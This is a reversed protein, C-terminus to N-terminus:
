PGAREIMGLASWRKERTRLSRRRNELDAKFTELNGPCPWACTRTEFREESFSDLLDRNLENATAQCDITGDCGVRLLGDCIEGVM